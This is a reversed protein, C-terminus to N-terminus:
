SYQQRRDKLKRRDEQQFDSMRILFETTERRDEGERRDNMHIYRCKCEKSKCKKLPFDPAEAVLYVRGRMSEAAQCCMLGPQVKVAKWQTNSSAALASKNAFSKRALSVGASPERGLAKGLQIQYQIYFFVSAGVILCIFFTTIFISM